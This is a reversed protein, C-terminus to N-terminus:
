AVRRIIREQTEQDGQQKWQSHAELFTAAIQPDFQTGKCRKIESYIVDDPLGKRYVRNEAMADYTDVVLIIRSILPISEGLLKDPYGEGDVREHHGRVAPLIQKFFPHASLPKIIQESIVSHSKMIDIEKPDLRSPKLLIDKEIGIKGIDHLLGSFEAVKQDYENLGLEKSLKRCYEGVRLCHQYTTPEVSNLSQLLAGVSEYAWDPVDGWSM